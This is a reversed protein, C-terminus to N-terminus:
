FVELEPASIDADGLFILMRGLPELKLLCAETCAKFGNMDGVTPIPSGQWYASEPLPEELGFRLDVAFSKFLEGPGIEIQLKEDWQHSLSSGDHNTFSNDQGPAVLWTLTGPDQLISVVTPDTTTTLTDADERLLPVIAGERLWLAISDMSVDREVEGPGVDVTGTWFDIWRGEPIPVQRQSEESVIPAVLLDPGLLYTDNPHRGDKPYMLGFPRMLPVGTEWAHLGWSFRYSALQMALKAAARFHTLTDETYQAENDNGPEWAFHNSGGGGVQMLPSLATQWAWRVL